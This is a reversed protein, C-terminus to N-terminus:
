KKLIAIIGIITGGIGTLATVIQLFVKLYLEHIERREKRYAPARERVAKQLARRTEHHLADGGFDDTYWHGPVEDPPCDPIPFDDLSLDMRVATQLLEKDEINALWLALERMDGEYFADIERRDNRSKAEKLKERHEIQARSMM